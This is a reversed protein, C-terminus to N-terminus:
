PMGQSIHTLLLHFIDLKVCVIHWIFPVPLAAQAKNGKTNLGSQTLCFSFHWFNESLAQTHTHTPTITGGHPGVEVLSTFKSIKLPPIAFHIYKINSFRM